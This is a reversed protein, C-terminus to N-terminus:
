IVEFCLTLGRRLRVNEGLDHGRELCTRFRDGVKGLLRAKRACLAWQCECFGRPLQDAIFKAGAERAKAVAQSRFRIPLM